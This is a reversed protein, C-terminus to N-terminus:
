IYFQTDHTDREHVNATCVVFCAIVRQLQQHQTRIRTCTSNKPTTSNRQLGRGSHIIYLAARKATVELGIRWQPVISPPTQRFLPAHSANKHTHTHTINMTLPTSVTNSSYLRMDTTTSSTLSPNLRVIRNVRPAIIINHTANAAHSITAYPYLCTSLFRSHTLITLLSSFLSSVNTRHSSFACM